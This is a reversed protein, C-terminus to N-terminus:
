NSQIAGSECGVTFESPISEERLCTWFQSIVQWYICDQNVVRLSKNEVQSHITARLM